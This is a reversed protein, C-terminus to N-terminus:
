IKEKNKKTLYNGETKEMLEHLPVKRDFYDFLKLWNDESTGRTGLEIKQYANKTIDLYEAIIKQTKNKEQRAQQLVERM